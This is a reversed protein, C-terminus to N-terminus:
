ANAVLSLLRDLEAKGTEFNRGVKGMVEKVIKSRSYGSDLLAPYSVSLALDRPNPTILIM